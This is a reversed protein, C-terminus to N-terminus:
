RESEQLDLAVFRADRFPTGWLLTTVVQEPLIGRVAATPHLDELRTM